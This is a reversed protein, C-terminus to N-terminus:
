PQLSLTAEEFACTGGDNDALFAFRFTIQEGVSVFDDELDVRVRIDSSGNRTLSPTSTTDADIKFRQQYNEDGLLLTFSSSLTQENEVSARISGSNGPSVTRDIPSASFEIQPDRRVPTTMRRDGVVGDGWILNAAALDGKLYLDFFALVYPNWRNSRNMPEFHSAGRIEALIKPGRGRQYNSSNILRTSTIFDRSGGTLFAPQTVDRFRSFPNPHLPMIAKVIEKDSAAGNAAAGGGMSHGTLGMNEVDVKNFLFNNTSESNARKLYRLCDLLDNNTALNTTRPLIVIYGNQALLRATPFYNRTPSAAGHGYGVAPFPGDAIRGVSSTPFFIDPKKM